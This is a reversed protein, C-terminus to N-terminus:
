LSYEDKVSSAVLTSRLIDLRLFGGNRLGDRTRLLPNEIFETDIFVFAWSLWSGVNLNPVALLLKDEDIDIDRPSHKVSDGGWSRFVPKLLGERVSM